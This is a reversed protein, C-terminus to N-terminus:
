NLPESWSCVMAYPLDSEGIVARWNASNKFCSVFPLDDAAASKLASMFLDLINQLAAMITAVDQEQMATGYNIDRLAQQLLPTEPEVRFIVRPQPDM